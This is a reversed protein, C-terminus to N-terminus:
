RRGMARGPKRAPQKDVAKIARAADNAATVSDLGIYAIFKNGSAMASYGRINVGSDAIARAVRSAIGPRDPGEIRLNAIDAAPALGASRAADQQKRGKVPTLFVLGTGPKDPQRRAIVGHLDAGASALTELVQALAGPQDDIEAVWIDEKIITIAM